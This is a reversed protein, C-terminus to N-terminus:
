GSVDCVRKKDKSFVASIDGPKRGIYFSGCGFLKNRNRELSNGTVPKQKLM